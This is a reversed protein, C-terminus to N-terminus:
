EITEKALLRMEAPIEVGLLTATRLNLCFYFKPPQIPIEGVKKGKLIKDVFYAADFWLTPFDVGYSLLAGDEVPQTWFRECM